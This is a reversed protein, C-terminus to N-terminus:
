RSKDHILNLGTGLGTKKGIDSGQDELQGEEQLAINV